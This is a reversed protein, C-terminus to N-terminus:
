GEYQIRYIYGGKDDSVYLAGDAGVLVDVPRGPVDGSAEDLWGTAFDVVGDASEGGTFPLRVVRYGTPESRNWSGHFAIFLDGRYEEPFTEGDYFTLGLPASHAQMEVVPQGVGACAGESGFDPDVIDGSHCAPWGYDAGERIIYVNEPPLEDGLLDRGNNTAWLEGSEPHLALGVANRLGSAYIRENEGGASDYVLIAARRPDEEVCVNCSSGVSLVMRGDPLFLVTRTRHNGDGPVGDVVAAQEDARGDGDTDRLRVVGTPVGVYWADEHYVLSHPSDLGTAYVEVGDAIGDGDVDPLRVIQGAGREAVYIAGDPGLAMFRPGQLGGAYVNAAFGAPTQVEAQGAPSAMSALNVRSSVYRYALLGAALLVFLLAVLPRFCGTRRTM